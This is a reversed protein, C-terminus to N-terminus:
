IGEEYRRRELPTAQRASVIKIEDDGKEFTVVYLMRSLSSHGLYEFRNGGPHDNLNSLAMPNSLVTM